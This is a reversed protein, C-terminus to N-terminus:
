KDFGQHLHKNIKQMDLNEDMLKIVSKLSFFDGENKLKLFITRILQLDAPYDVTFYYDPCNIGKPAKVKMIKFDDEHDFFYPITHELYFHNSTKAYIKELAKVDILEAACGYPWGERNSAYIFDCPNKQHLSMLYNCCEPDILPDDGGVRIIYDIQFKRACLIVRNMVDNLPGRFCDFGYKSCLEEVRDDSSHESTAVVLKPAKKGQILRRLQRLLMPQGHIDALVKEPLRTSGTRAQIVIGYKNLKATYFSSQGM